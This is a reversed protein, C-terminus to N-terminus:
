QGVKTWNDAFDAPVVSRDPWTDIGCQRLIHQIGVSCVFHENSLGIVIKCGKLFEWLDGVDYWDGNHGTTEEYLIATSVNKDEPNRYVEYGNPLTDVETWTAYPFTFEFIIWKGEATRWLAIKCHTVKWNKYGKYKQWLQIVKKVIWGHPSKLFKVPVHGVLVDGYKLNM